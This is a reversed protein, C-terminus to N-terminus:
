LQPHLFRGGPISPVQLYISYATTSLQCATTKWSSPQAHPQFNRATFFLSTVFSWL